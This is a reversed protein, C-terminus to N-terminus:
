LYSVSVNTEGSGEDDSLNVPDQKTGPSELIARRPIRHGHSLEVVREDQQNSSLALAGRLPRRRSM